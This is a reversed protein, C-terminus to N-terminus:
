SALYEALAKKWSRMAKMKTNILASYEPRKAPRPFEATTCPLVKVKIGKIKFAEKAFDYWTAQGENTVHYIGFPLKKDLIEKTRKALDLTYTPKGHQDNVVKLTDHEKALQLMTDVFNKGRKGYLWATRLIYYKKCNKKILKEGLAKTQGYANIPDIKSYSERYGDKKLGNFIYDTSYHFFPIKLKQSIKALNGPGTGNVKRALAKKNKEECGDVDTFAACNIIADPNLKAVIKNVMKGNTIDLEERDYKILEHEKELLSCLDQGLMGRAGTILIKM